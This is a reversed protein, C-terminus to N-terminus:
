ENGLYKSNVQVNNLQFNDVLNIGVIENLDKRNLNDYDSSEDLFLVRKQEV